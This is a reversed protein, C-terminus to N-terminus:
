HQLFSAMKQNAISAASGDKLVEAESNALPLVQRKAPVQRTERAERYSSIYIHTAIDEHRSDTIDGTGHIM